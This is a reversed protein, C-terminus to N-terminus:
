RSKPKQFKLVYQSTQAQQGASSAREQLSSSLFDAAEVFRFGAAQVEAQVIRAEIRHEEKAAVLGAGAAAAHDAVIYFGGPQLARFVAANFQERDRQEAVLEHYGFLFTVCNLNKAEPLFPAQLPTAMHIMNAPVDEPERTAGSSLNHLVRPDRRAYVVGFPGVADSFAALAYGTGAGLDAMRDGRGLGFFALLPVGSPPAPAPSRPTLGQSDSSAAPAPQQAAPEPPQAAPASASGAACAASGLLVAACALPTLRYFPKRPV